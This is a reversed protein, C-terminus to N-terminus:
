KNNIWHRTQHPIALWFSDHLLIHYGFKFPMTGRSSLYYAWVKSKPVFPVQNILLNCGFMQLQMEVYRNNREIYISIWVNLYEHRDFKHNIEVKIQNRRHTSRMPQQKIYDNRAVEYRLNSSSMHRRKLVFHVSAFM